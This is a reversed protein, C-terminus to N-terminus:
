ATAKKAAARAGGFRPVYKPVSEQYRRYADGFHNVLDREEVFVALVMYTTAVGAFLLHGLSL